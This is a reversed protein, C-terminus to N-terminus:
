KEAHWDLVSNWDTVPVGHFSWEGEEDQVPGFQIAAEASLDFGILQSRVSGSGDLRRRDWQALLLNDCASLTFRPTGLRPRVMGLQRLAVEQTSSGPAPEAAYITGETVGEWAPQGSHLNLCRIRGADPLIVLDDVVIPHHSCLHGVQEAVQGAPLRFQQAANADTPPATTLPTTWVPRLAIDIPEAARRTRAFNGAFTPWDGSARRTPWSESQRSCRKWRPWM